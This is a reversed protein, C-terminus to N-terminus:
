KLSTLYAEFFNRFSVLYKITTKVIGEDDWIKVEWNPHIERWQGILVNYQPPIDSGLWIFHLKKPIDSCIQNNRQSANQYERFSSNNDNNNNNSFNISSHETVPGTTNMRDSDCDSGHPTEKRHIWQKFLKSIEDVFIADSSCWYNERTIRSSPTMAYSSEQEKLM